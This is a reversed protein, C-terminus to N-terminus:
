NKSTLIMLWGRYRYMNESLLKVPVPTDFVVYKCVSDTLDEFISDKAIESCSEDGVYDSILRIAKCDHAIASQGPVTTPHLLTRLRENEKKLKKLKIRRNM